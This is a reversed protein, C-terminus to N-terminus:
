TAGTKQEGFGKNYLGKSPAKAAAPGSGGARPPPLAARSSDLPSAMSRRRTFENPRWAM